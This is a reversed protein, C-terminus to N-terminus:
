KIKTSKKSTKKLFIEHIRKLLWVFIKISLYIIVFFGSFLILLVDLSHYQFFNLEQAASKLYKAGKHRTVDEVWWVARELPTEPQDQFKESMDRVNLAFKPDQLLRKTAALLNSS